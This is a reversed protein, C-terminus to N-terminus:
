PQAGRRRPPRPAGLALRHIRRAPRRHLQRVAQLFMLESLKSSFPKAARARSRTKKSRWASSAKRQTERWAPRKVHLMRPLADLVSQVPACRLWPLRVRFAGAKGRRRRRQASVAAARDHPRYYLDMNPEARKGLETSMFHGEGGIFISRRRRERAERRPESEDALQAWCWGDLMIHFSIAHEFAPMVNACIRTTAPTEAVWPERARVDFYVAGTLRVARLVDSLVDLDLGEPLSLGPRTSCAKGLVRDYVGPTHGLYPLELDRSRTTSRSFVGLTSAWAMASKAAPNRPSSILGLSLRRHRPARGRYRWSRCAGARQDRAADFTASTIAATFNPRSVPSSIAMRPPPWM